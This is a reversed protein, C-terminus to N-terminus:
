SLLVPDALWRPRVSELKCAGLRFVNRPQEVLVGEKVLLDLVPRYLEVKQNDFTRVLDRQRVPQNASIRGVLKEALDLQRVLNARHQAAGLLRVHDDLLAICLRHIIAAVEEDPPAANRKIMDFTWRLVAPLDELGACPVDAGDCADLFAAQYDLRVRRGEPSWLPLELCHGRRRKDAVVQVIRDYAHHFVAVKYEDWTGPGTPRSADVLIVRNAFGPFAEMAEAIEGSDATLICRIEGRESKTLSKGSVRVPLELDRGEVLGFFEELARGGDRLLHGLPFGPLLATSDHCGGVLERLKVCPPNELIFGPRLVTRLRRDYIDPELDSDYPDPGGMAGSEQLLALVQAQRNQETEEMFRGRAGRLEGVANHFDEASFGSFRKRLQEDVALPVLRLAELSRPRRGGKTVLVPVLSSMPRPIEGYDLEVIPGAVGVLMSAVQIAVAHQASGAHSSWSALGYLDSHM